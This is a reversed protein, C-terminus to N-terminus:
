KVTVVTSDDNGRSFDRLLVGCVLGADRRLLRPYQELDWRATLGDSHLILTSGEPWPYSFERMSTRSEM